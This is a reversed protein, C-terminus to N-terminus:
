LNPFVTVSFAVSMLLPGRASVQPAGDMEALWYASCLLLDDDETLLEEGLDGDLLELGDKTPDSILFRDLGERLDEHWFRQIRAFGDFDYWGTLAVPMMAPGRIRKKDPGTEMKTRFRRDPFTIAFGDVLRPTALEAPWTVYSM